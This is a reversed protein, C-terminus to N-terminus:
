VFLLVCTPDAKFARLQTKPAIRDVCPLRVIQKCVARSATRLAHDRSGRMDRVTGEGRRACGRMRGAPVKEGAPSFSCLAIRMTGRIRRWDLEKEGAPLLHGSAPHPPRGRRISSFVVTYISKLQVGRADGHM